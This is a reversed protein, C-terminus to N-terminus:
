KSLHEEIGEYLQAATLDTGILENNDDIQGASHSSESSRASIAKPMRITGNSASLSDVTTPIQADPTSADVGNERVASGMENTKLDRNSFPNQFYTANYFSSLQFPENYNFQFGINFFLKRM